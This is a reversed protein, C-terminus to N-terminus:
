EIVEDARGLLSPPVTLGLAQAAKLNIVLEFRTPAQVPLDGPKEGRLIRDVSSAARRYLDVTEVGYSILGGGTVHYRYPYVAPLRHRAALAVIAASHVFTFAGPLVILAANSERALTGIAREIESADHPDAAIVQVGFSPAVGIIARTYESSTRDAPNQIVAVRAVGPAVEKLLELWKGGLAYEFNTFGTINGGPRALSAVFGGEVPDPVQVFVIPVTQTENKVAALMLTSNVVIVDPALGVLKAANARLRDAEGEAWHYDIRFNRGETWGLKELGQRFTSIRARGEPDSEALPTLVGIRRIREDPQARAALPWAAASGLLTIFARREM